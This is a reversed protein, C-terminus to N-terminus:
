KVFDTEPQQYSKIMTKKDSVEAPINQVSQQSSQHEQKKMSETAVEVQSRTDYPMITYRSGTPTTQQRMPRHYKQPVDAHTMKYEKNVPRPQQKLQHMKMMDVNQRMCAKKCPKETKIYGYHKSPKHMRNYKKHMVGKDPNYKKAAIVRTYISVVTLERDCFNYLQGNIDVYFRCNRGKMSKASGFGQNNVVPTNNYIYFQQMREPYKYNDRFQSMQQKDLQKFNFTSTPMKGCYGIHNTHDYLYQQGLPCNKLSVYRTRQAHANLSMGIVIINTM